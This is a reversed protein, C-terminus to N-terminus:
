SVANYHKIIILMAMLLSALLAMAFWPNPHKILNM